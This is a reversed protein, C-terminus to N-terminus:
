TVHIWGGVGSAVEKQGEAEASATLGGGLNSNARTPASSTNRLFSPFQTLLWLPEHM